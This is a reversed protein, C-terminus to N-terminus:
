SEKGKVGGTNPTAAPTERDPSGAAKPRGVAIGPIRAIAAGSLQKADALLTYAVPVVLLTLLTSSAMGGIVLIGMPTRWEAGDSRALAVPVMGAMTSLATMLVPRLRVPGARAIADRASLGQARLQNAYDVLLIGNKMVLGMLAVLGIQAFISMAAGSMRLAVFAGVFSLPATLMIAVPQTFSNFQSALIMYLATLALAFAFVVAEASERMREAMGGHAGSYGAPLDAESVIEDLRLAASGLPVDEPMNSFISIRRGRNRREIQAPGSAVRISALNALDILRGNVSRVQIRGLEALDDRQSEELRLRVDFRTGDEQYTSVDMGGVLARVTEALARVSVSLDAVRQRDVQIQVEPKGLEFSSKTDVFHPDQQMRSVILDTREQLIGLSSGTVGYEMSYSSFGGGSVWPVESVSVRKARPAARTIAERAREMIGLQSTQRDAKPLTSVYLRIENVRSRSGGGASVFATEVDDVERLASGVRSAAAKAEAIGTDLPLEVLGEFESRDVRGSFALPVGRAVVVGIVVSSLALAVTLVRHRLARGLIRSYLTEIRVYFSELAVSLDGHSEGRKLAQACLAPTLTVAVLLSVSVAFCIALGYEYFFRGIVGQMFAIPIFVALVAITAAVVASGVEATGEAAAQLPRTGGEIKRHISELVVIADDILLGISLSLAMLSLLNLTFGVVYFLFFTSVISTPIAVAVILTARVSRLFIFTVLVALLGGLVIDIGVDNASAVIFRSVDRAVTVRVGPPANAQLEAVVGRVARAVEVTNRGSQRRVELSVGPIGDLEAYSREDELGDEIRAADRLLTTAGDRYAVALSGFGRVSSVEGKTKLSFEASRGASELIGGPVEAHESRIAKVLEDVTLGYSRLKRADAWIRVERERGGILTASGVGPIREVREKVVTKAFRTLDRIPLSGSVMVSLIPSADPDVKEVVPAHADRPLEAHARAVKDRVDQARVDPDEELEFQVFVQSLGESSVSRLEKIGGITNLQEELVDTVESEVTEPTAGELVTTVAMYPFDIRPFLDVGLRGISIAGLGFLAGCLMAAFVPRRISFDAIQM